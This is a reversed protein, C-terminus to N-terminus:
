TIVAKLRVSRKGERELLPCLTHTGPLWKCFKSLCSPDAGTRGEPCVWKAPKDRRDVQTNQSLRKIRLFSRCSRQEPLVERGLYKCWNRELLFGQCNKCKMIEAENYVQDGRAGDQFCYRGKILVYFEHVFLHFVEGRPTSSLVSDTRSRLISTWVHFLM